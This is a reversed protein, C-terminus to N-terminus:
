HLLAVNCRFGTRVESLRRRKPEEEIDEKMVKVDETKSKKYEDRAEARAKSPMSPMSSFNM